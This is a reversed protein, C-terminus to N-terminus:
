IHILSLSEVIYDLKSIHINSGHTRPMKENVEAIIIDANEAAAKTYDVSVGYSCYGHRDPKSLQVMAVDVELHNNKFLEPIKFFFSPTYDARNEKIAKRTSAGVFLANHHFHGEMEEKTYDAPGMAVMHMVEVDKLEDKRVLMAEILDQPEACAHGTVVRDGSKIAKVAEAASCLKKKYKNKWKM